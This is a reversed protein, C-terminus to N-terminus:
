KIARWDYKNLKYETWQWKGNPHIEGLYHGKFLCYISRTTNADIDNDFIQHGGHESYCNLLIPKFYDIMQPLDMSKINTLIEAPDINNFKMLLRGINSVISEESIEPHNKLWNRIAKKINYGRLLMFGLDLLRNEDKLRHYEDSYFDVYARIHHPFDFEGYM